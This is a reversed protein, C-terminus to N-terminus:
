KTCRDRASESYLGSTESPCPYIQGDNSQRDCFVKYGSSTGGYGQLYCYGVSTGSEGSGNAIM